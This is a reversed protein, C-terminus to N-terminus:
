RDEKQVRMLSHTYVTDSYLRGDTGHSEVTVQVSPRRRPRGSQTTPVPRLATITRPYTGYASVLVDGITLTYAQVLRTTSM